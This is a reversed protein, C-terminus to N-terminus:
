EVGFIVDLVPSYWTEPMEVSGSSINALVTSEEEEEDDSEDDDLGVVTGSVEGEMVWGLEERAVQEVGSDTSLLELEEEIAENREVLAAYEAELQDQERLAQYYTQATPYLFVCSFVLCAVVTLTVALKTHRRKKPAAYSREASLQPNEKSQMRTARRQKSGMEGKYVAARPGEDAGQAQAAADAKGYQKQYKREAKSKERAQKRAEARSGEEKGEHAADRSDRRGEDRSSSAAASEADGHTWYVDFSPRGSRAPSHQVRSFSGSDYAASYRSYDYFSSGQARSAAQSGAGQQVRADPRAEPASGIRSPADGYAIPSAFDFDDSDYVDERSPIYRGTEAARGAASQSLGSADQSRADRKMEDFSYINPQYGM